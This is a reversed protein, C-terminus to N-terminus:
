FEREERLMTEVLDCPRHDLAEFEHYQAAELISNTLWM